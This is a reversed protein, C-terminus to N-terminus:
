YYRILDTIKIQAKEFKEDIKSRIPPLDEVSGTKRFKAVVDLITQSRPPKINPFKDQWAKVVELSSGFAFYNEVMFVREDISYRGM